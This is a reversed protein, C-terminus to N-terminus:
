ELGTYMKNYIFLLLYIYESSHKYGFLAPPSNVEYYPFLSSIYDFTSKFQKTKWM